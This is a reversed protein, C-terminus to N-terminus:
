AHIRTLLVLEAVGRNDPASGWQANPILVNEGTVEAAEWGGVVLTGDVVTRVYVPDGRKPVTAGQVIVSISGRQFVSVAENVAYEGGRNQDEYYFNSKIEKGAVGIFNDATLTADVNKVGGLDVDLTSMLPSGFVINTDGHNPLTAIIMDPQRAYTGAFGRNLTNGITKGPM